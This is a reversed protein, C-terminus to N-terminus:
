VLTEQEGIFHIKDPYIRKYDYKSAKCNEDMTHYLNTLSKAKSIQFKNENERKQQQQHQIMLLSSASITTKPETTSITPTRPSSASKTFTSLSSTVTPQLSNKPKSMQKNLNEENLNNILNKNMHSIPFYARNKVYVNRNAALSTRSNTTTKNNMNLSASTSQQPIKNTNNALLSLKKNFAKANQITFYQSPTPNNSTQQNNPSTACKISYSYNRAVNAGTSVPNITLKDLENSSQCLDSSSSSEDTNNRTTVSSSYGSSDNNNLHNDMSGIIESRCFFLFIIKIIVLLM